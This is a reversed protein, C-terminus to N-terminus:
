GAGESVARAAALGETDRLVEFTATAKALWDSVEEVRTRSLVRALDLETLAREWQDGLSDFGAAARELSRAAAEFDGSATEARGELRDAFSAVSPADGAEAHARMTAVLDAAQEWSANAALREAEAALADGAHVEWTRPRHLDKALALDGRVVLFRLLNPYLRGFSESVMRLMPGVLADSQVREGRRQHIVGALGFAHTAFYPPDDERYDLMQRISAFGDLAEDWRGLRYLAAIRWASIHLESSPERGTIAELGADAIEL